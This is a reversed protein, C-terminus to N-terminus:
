SISIKYLSFALLGVLITVLVNKSFIGVVLALGGSILYPNEFSINLDGTPMLVAPVTIATLVAPAIFKLSDKLIEPLDIRDSFAILTYRIGFTVLAMGLIIIIEASNM